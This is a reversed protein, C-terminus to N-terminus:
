YAKDPRIEIYRKKWASQFQAVSITGDGSKEAPDNYHVMGNSVGNVVVLHPIPNKPDFTYHVSVMVPGENLVTELQNFAANMSLAAMDRSAGKLGYKTSLAILGAHTWGANSLYADAVIGEQLLTDVTMKGPEYYEILMALSAIGCGIKKWATPTIDTFQSYFPVSPIRTSVAIHETIKQSASAKRPEAAISPEEREKEVELVEAAQSEAHIPLEDAPTAAVVEKHPIPAIYSLSNSDTFHASAYAGGVITTLVFTFILARYM